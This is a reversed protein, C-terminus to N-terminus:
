PASGGDAAPLDGIMLDAFVKADGILNPIWAYENPQHATEDMRSWVVAPFGRRRLCAAVTGGGIGRPKADVGYVKHVSRVVRGVIPADAPTPPAADERQVVEVQVVVRYQRAVEDCLARVQGLVDEVAVAPLIRCDLYFVDEGPITNVNEVNAERRTPEFTSLPPDFLPDRVDFRDYLGRLKLVLASGAVMANKGQGPTSAHVQKGVTHLKLWLIAKEAVEVLSGDENGADPVVFADDPGFLGPHHDLLHQLGFTSGTEEDAVFLLGVDCAPQLGLDILAKAALASSVLGQHNDEVGRGVIKDGEVRLAFPDSKWLSADGAPVVDLHSMFWLRRTRDRGPLVVVLNARPVGDDDADLRLAEPFGNAPLWQQLFAAKEAEGPGGNAPGVANRCVLETQLAIMADVSGDLWASARGFPTEDRAVKRRSTM